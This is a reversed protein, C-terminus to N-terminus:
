KDNTQIKTSEKQLAVDVNDLIYKRKDGKREEGVIEQKGVKAIGQSLWDQLVIAQM